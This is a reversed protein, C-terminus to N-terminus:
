PSCKSTCTRLHHLPMSALVEWWHSARVRPSLRVKGWWYRATTPMAPACETRTVCSSSIVTIPPGAPSFNVVGNQAAVIPTGVKNTIDIGKHM